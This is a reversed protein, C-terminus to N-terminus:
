TVMSGPFFAPQGPYTAQQARFGRGRYRRSETCRPCHLQSETTMFPLSGREWAYNRLQLASRCCLWRRTTVAGVHRSM